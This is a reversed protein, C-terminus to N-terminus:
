SVEHPQNKRLFYLNNDGIGLADFFRTIVHDIKTWHVLTFIGFVINVWFSRKGNKSWFPSPEGMKPYVFLHIWQYYLWESSTITKVKKVSLGAKRAAAPMSMLSFHQLHYPAHWNIWRRGFLRAGWGNANPTSLIAIGEQKLVRAVGKMTSVPDTVHEIVQDMTVYDFFNAKYLDPDFLGVHVKFGFKDAVRRINEDAEVGYVDCGRSTHYGLSEGFGCGIDLVRVNKPVWSYALRREGNLWSIFGKVKPSPKYHDLDFTSRPYYDTYLRSLLEPTFDGDLVKHGCQSCTVLQFSGPYGYRDDYLEFTGNMEQSSCIPCSRTEKERHLM